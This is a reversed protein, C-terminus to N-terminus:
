QFLRKIWKNMAKPGSKQDAFLRRLKESRHLEELAMRRAVEEARQAEKSMLEIRFNTKKIAAELTHENSM